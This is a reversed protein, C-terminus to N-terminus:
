RRLDRDNLEFAKNTADVASLAVDVNGIGSAIRRATKLLAFKAAPDDQTQEADKLMKTALSQKAQATKAAEFEPRYVEAVLKSAAALQADDPVALRKAPQALLSAAASWLIMALSLRAFMLLEPIVRNLVSKEADPAPRM